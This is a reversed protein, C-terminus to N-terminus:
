GESRRIVRLSPGNKEGGFRRTEVWGEASFIFQGPSELFLRASESEHLHQAAIELVDPLFHESEAYPPDAFIFDFPDSPRLGHRRVDRVLLTGRLPTDMSKEVKTRNAELIRAINRSSEIWIAEAAGRSLSELGYAGTGAFLDLVRSNRIATGISSFVAERMRDTAPRVEPGKSPTKLIVGSAQGGSIRM